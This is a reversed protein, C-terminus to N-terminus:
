LCSLKTRKGDASLNLKYRARWKAHLKRYRIYKSIAYVPIIKAISAEASVLSNEELFTQLEKEDFPGPLGSLLLTFTRPTISNDDIKKMWRQHSTWTIAYLGYLVVSIGINIWLQDTPTGDKGHAALTGNMINLVHYHDAWEEQKGATYNDILFYV